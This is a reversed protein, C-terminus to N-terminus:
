QAASRRFEIPVWLNCGGTEPMNANHHESKGNTCRGHTLDESDEMGKAWSQCGGCVAAKVNPNPEM